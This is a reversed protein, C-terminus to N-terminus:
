LVRYDVCDESRLPHDSFAILEAPEKGVNKTAMAINEMLHIVEAGERMMFEQRQKTNVDEFAALLDGRSLYYMVRTSKRYHNGTTVGPEIVVRSMYVDGIKTSHLVRGPKSTDETLRFIKIFNPNNTM